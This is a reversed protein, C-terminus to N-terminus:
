QLIGIHFERSTVEDPTRCSGTREASRTGDVRRLIGRTEYYDILPETKSRYEELRHKIVDPRDDDRQVLRSGFFHDSAAGRTTQSSGLPISRHSM